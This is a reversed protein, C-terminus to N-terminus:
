GGPSPSPRDLERPDLILVGSQEAGPGSATFVNVPRGVEAAYRGALARVSGEADAAGLIAVTGGSGGGTIRASYLGHAAGMEAVLAVLRDTEPCGLRCAGYSAHSEATLRGLEATATASAPGNVLQAFRSVRAHEYVPHATAQRVPYWADRKVRTVTDTIGGYHDLFEAGTMRDPLHPAFCRAFEDPPINALYGNWELDHIRVREGDRQVALGAREAILRYGMFAAARVRGYADGSVAHRVGSDIGFVRLNAPLRVHGEIRGPQCLLQLLQGSLGCASTMQDMLGCPAGAIHNEVWQCALAVDAASQSRALAANVAVMTAVELAASSSVGAGIPVNSDILIRLGPLMEDCHHVVGAVYAAWRDSRQAGDAFWAALTISDEADPGVLRRMPISFPLWRDDRRTMVECRAARQRQVVAFTACALPLELVLAGSYDAIGGMVDLRGPARGIHLPETASFFHRITEDADTALARIREVARAFWARELDGAEALARVRIPHTM